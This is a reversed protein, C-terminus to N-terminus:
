SARWHFSPDMQGLKPERNVKRDIIRAKEEHFSSVKRVATHQAPAWQQVNSILCWLWDLGTWAAGGGVSTLGGVVGGVVGEERSVEGGGIEDRRWVGWSTGERECQSVQNKGGVSSRPEEARIMKEGEKEGGQLFGEWSIVAAWHHRKLTELLSAARWMCWYLTPCFHLISSFCVALGCCLWFFFTEPLCIQLSSLPGALVPVLTSLKIDGPQDM